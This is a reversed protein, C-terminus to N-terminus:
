FARVSLFQINRRHRSGVLARHALCNKWVKCRGSNVHYLSGSRSLAKYISRRTGMFPFFFPSLLVKGHGSGSPEAEKKQLSGESFVRWVRAGSCLPGRPVFVYACIARVGSDWLLQLLKFCEFNQGCIDMLSHLADQPPSLQRSVQEVNQSWAFRGPASASMRAFCWSFCWFAPSSSPM